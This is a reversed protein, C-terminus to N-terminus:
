IFVASSWTLTNSSNCRVINHSDCKTIGLASQLLTQWANHYTAKDHKTIRFIDFFAVFNIVSQLLIIM